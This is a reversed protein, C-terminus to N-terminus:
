VFFYFYIGEADVAVVIGVVVVSPDAIGVVGGAVEAAAAAAVVVVDEVENNDLPCKSKFEKSFINFFSNHYSKLQPGVLTVIRPTLHGLIAM